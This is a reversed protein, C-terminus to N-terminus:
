NLFAMTFGYRFIFKKTMIVQSLSYYLDKYSIDFIPKKYIPWSVINYNLALVYPGEFACDSQIQDITGYIM